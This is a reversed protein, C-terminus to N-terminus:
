LVMEHCRIPVKKAAVESASEMAVAAADNMKLNNVRVACSYFLKFGHEVM